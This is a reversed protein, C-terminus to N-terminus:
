GDALFAKTLSAPARTLWADTLIEALEDRGLEGLRSQQVLVANTRHFHDITFFPLREDEVLAAMEAPSPVWIVLLDDYPAGTAPDIAHTDPARHIAFGKGRVKYTPRDGWSTGFEVEPLGLCIEAVDEPTASRRPASVM